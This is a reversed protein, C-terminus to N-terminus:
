FGLLIISFCMHFFKNKNFNPTYSISPKNLNLETLSIQVPGKELIKSFTESCRKENSRKTTAEIKWFQKFTLSVTM